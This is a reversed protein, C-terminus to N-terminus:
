KFIYFSLTRHFSPFPCLFSWFCIGSKELGNFVDDALKQSGSWRRCTTRSVVFITHTHRHTHIRGDPQAFGDDLQKFATWCSLHIWIITPFPDFRSTSQSKWLPHCSGSHSVLLRVDIWSAWFSFLEGQQRESMCMVEDPRQQQQKKQKENQKTWGGERSGDTAGCRLEFCCLPQASM